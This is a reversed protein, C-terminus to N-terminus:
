GVFKNFRQLPTELVGGGGLRQSYSSCPTNITSLSVGPVHTKKVQDWLRVATSLEQGSVWWQWLCLYENIKNCNAIPITNDVYKCEVIPVNLIHISTGSSSRQIRPERKRNLLLSGVKLFKLTKRWISKDLYNSENLVLGAPTSQLAFSYIAM